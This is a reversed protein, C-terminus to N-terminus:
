DLGTSRPWWMPSVLIAAWAAIVRPWKGGFRVAFYDPVTYLEMRRLHPAVWMAVLCFGGTWGLIFALGGPQGGTGTFGQQYLGGALSIFSAASMWDAATAMGNYVAPIRRGAVYYETADATRGYVGIAAYLILTAALFIAAVWVKPLGAQEALALAAVALVLGAVFVGFRRHIHAYRSLGPSAVSV